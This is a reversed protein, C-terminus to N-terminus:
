FGHIFALVIGGIAAFDVFGRFSPGSFYLDLLLRHPHKRAAGSSPMLPARRIM